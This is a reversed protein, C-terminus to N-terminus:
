FILTEWKPFTMDRNCMKSYDNKLCINLIVYIFFDPHGM